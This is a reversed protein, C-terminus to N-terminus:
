ANAQLVKNPLLFGENRARRLGRLGGRPLGCVAERLIPQRDQCDIRRLARLLNGKHHVSDAGLAVLGEDCHVELRLRVGINHKRLLQPVSLVNLM